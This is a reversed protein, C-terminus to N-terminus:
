KKVTEAYISIAGNIQEDIHSELWNREDKEFGFWLKVRIQAPIINKLKEDSQKGPWKFKSLM